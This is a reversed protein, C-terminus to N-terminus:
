RAREIAGNEGYDINRELIGPRRNREFEQRSRYERSLVARHEVHIYMETELADLFDVLTGRKDVLTIRRSVTEGYAAHCM